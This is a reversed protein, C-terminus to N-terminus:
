FSFDFAPNLIDLLFDSLLLFFLLLLIMKWRESKQFLSAARGSPIRVSMQSFRSLFELFGEM